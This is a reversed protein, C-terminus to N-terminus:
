LIIKIDKHSFGVQVDPLFGLSESYSVGKSNQCLTQFDNLFDRLISFFFM